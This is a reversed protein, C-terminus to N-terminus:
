DLDLELELFYDKPEEILHAHTAHGWLALTVAVLPSIDVSAGVRAWASSGGLPRTKAGAIAADLEPQGRHRLTKSDVALEYFRGFAQTVDRATPKTVKVGAAELPAILVGASSGADIVVACPKWLDNLEVIRDVMWSTGRDHDIVEVTNADAVAISGFTREPTVDAAICIPDIPAAEEDLLAQWDETTIVAHGGDKTPWNGVGLRERAFDKATMSEMERSIHEATIRIGLGPNARAWSKPDSPEDHQTCTLPCHDNHPEISWEAYFLRGSSTFNELLARERLRAVPECPALDKDPATFAYWVQPNPRASLAPMMAGISIDSLIQAEDLILTDCTFGRGSGTSRAVFRLRKGGKLEIGEEGHSTRISKVRKRLHDWNDVLAKIRLFSEAATPYLHASHLILMEDFLFLGALERAVLKETKGNQRSVLEAVEFAAWKGNAQVGLGQDLSWAQWDDLYLGVSAALEVAEQGRSSIRPPVCLIRPRQNGLLPLPIRSASAAEVKGHNRERSPPLKGGHNARLAQNQAAPAYATLSM